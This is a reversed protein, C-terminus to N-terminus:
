LPTADDRWSQLSQTADNVNETHTLRRLNLMYRFHLMNLPHVSISPGSQRATPSMCQSDSGGLQSGIPSAAACAITHQDVWLTHLRTDTTSSGRESAATRVQELLKLRLLYCSIWRRGFPRTPAMTTACNSLRDRERTTMREYGNAKKGQRPQEMAPLHPECAGGSTSGM